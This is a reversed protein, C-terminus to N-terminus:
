YLAANGGCRIRTGRGRRMHPGPGLHPIQEGSHEGPHEGPHAQEGPHQRLRCKPEGPVHSQTSRLLLHADHELVVHGQVEVRLGHRVLEQVHWLQPTSRAGMSQIERVPYVAARNPDHLFHRQAELRRKPRVHSCGADLQPVGLDHQREDRGPRLVLAHGNIRHVLRDPLGRRHRGRPGAATRPRRQGPQHCRPRWAADRVCHELLRGPPFPVRRGGAM